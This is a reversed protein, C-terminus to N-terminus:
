PPLLGLVGQGTKREKTGPVSPSLRLVPWGSLPLCVKGPRKCKFNTNFWANFYVGSRIKSEKKGQPFVPAISLKRM